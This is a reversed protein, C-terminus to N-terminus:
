NRITFGLMNRSPPSKELYLLGGRPGNVDKKEGLCSMFEKKLSFVEFAFFAKAKLPLFWRFLLRDLPRFVEFARDEQQWFVKLSTHPLALLSFHVAGSEVATAVLAQREAM